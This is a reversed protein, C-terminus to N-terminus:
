EDVGDKLRPRLLPISTPFVFTAGPLGDEGDEGPLVEGYAGGGGGGPTIMVVTATSTEYPWKVERSGPELFVLPENETGELTKAYQKLANIIPLNERGGGAGGRHSVSEKEGEPLSRVSRSARAPGGAGGKGPTGVNVTILTGKHLGGLYAVEVAGPGGPKGVESPLAELAM